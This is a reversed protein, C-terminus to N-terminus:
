SRNMRKWRYYERRKERDSTNAEADACGIAANYGMRVIKKAEEIVQCALDYESGAYIRTKYGDANDKLRDEVAKQHIKNECSFRANKGNDVLKKAEDLVERVLTANRPTSENEGLIYTGHDDLSGTRMEKETGRKRQRKTKRLSVFILPVGDM